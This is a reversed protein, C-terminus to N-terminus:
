YHGIELTVKSLARFLHKIKYLLKTFNLLDIPNIAICIFVAYYGNKTSIQLAVGLSVKTSFIPFTEM